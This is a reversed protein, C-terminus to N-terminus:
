LSSLLPLPELDQAMIPLAALEVDSAWSSFMQGVVDMDIRHETRLFKRQRRKHLGRVRKRIKEEYKQAHSQVQRISRTGVHDAIAKWPGHPHRKMAELFRDHEDTSWLGHRVVKNASMNRTAM